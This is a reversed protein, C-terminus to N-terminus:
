GRFSRVYALVDELQNPTLAKSKHATASLGGTKGNAIMSSLEADTMNQVTSTRFDAVNNKKGITTNGSADAGHCSACKGKFISAGSAVDSAAAAVPDPANVPAAADARDQLAQGAQAMVEGSAAVAQRAEEKLGQGVLKAGEAIQDGGAAIESNAEITGTTVTTVTTDAETSYSSTSSVETTEGSCGVLTALFGLSAIAFITRKM